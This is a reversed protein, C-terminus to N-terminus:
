KPARRKAHAGKGRLRRFGRELKIVVGPLIFGLFSAIILQYRLWREESPVLNAAGGEKFFLFFVTAFVVVICVAVFAVSLLLSAGKAFGQPEGFPECVWKALRPILRFAPWVFAGMVLGLLIARISLM